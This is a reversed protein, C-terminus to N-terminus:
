TSSKDRLLPSSAGTSVAQCPVPRQSKWGTASVKMSNMSNSASYIGVHNRPKVVIVKCNREHMGILAQETKLERIIQGDHEWGSADKSKTRKWGQEYIFQRLVWENVGVIFAYM